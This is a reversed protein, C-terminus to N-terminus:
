NGKIQNHAKEGNRGNNRRNLYNYLQTHSESLSYLREELLKFKEAALHKTAHIDRLCQSLNVDLHHIRTNTYHYLICIYLAVSVNILLMIVLFNM